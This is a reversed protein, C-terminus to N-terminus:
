VLIHDGNITNLTAPPAGLFGINVDKSLLMNAIEGGNAGTALDVTLGYQSFYGKEKAVHIALQHIDGSIVAVKVTGTGTTKAKNDLADKLYSDDVFAESFKDANEFKKSTILGLDKLDSALSSIDKELGSLSGSTDDAVLYTINSLAAKVEAESLGTTTTMAFSVLWDYNDGSGAAKADNIFKVAQAYGALFKVTNDSNEGLWNHNAAVICCTHGKFVDNTLALTTYKTSLETIIRQFQPEWLIGGNIKDNTEVLGKNSLNTIYYLTDAETTTGDLYQTFKLGVKQAISALQTHQISSAGPDGFILGGWADKNAESLTYNTGFFPTDTDKRVPMDGTTDVYEKDVYLGSGESNVRSIVNFASGDYEASDKKDGLLVFASVGAIAVVAVVAIAIIAKSNM